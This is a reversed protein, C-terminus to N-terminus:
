LVYDYSGQSSVGAQAVSRCTSGRLLKIVGHETVDCIFQPYGMETHEHIVHIRYFGLTDVLSRKNASFNTTSLLAAHLHIGRSTVYVEETMMLLLIFNGM